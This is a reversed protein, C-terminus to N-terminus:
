VNDQPGSVLRCGVVGPMFGKLTEARNVARANQRRLIELRKGVDREPGAMDRLRNISTLTGILCVLTRPTSSIGSGGRETDRQQM